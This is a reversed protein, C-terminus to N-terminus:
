AFARIRLDSGNRRNRRHRDALDSELDVRAHILPIRIPDVELECPFTLAPRLDQSAIEFGPPVPPYETPTSDSTPLGAEEIPTEAIPAPALAKTAPPVHSTAGYRLSDRLCNASVIGILLLLTVFWIAHRTAANTRGALRMGVAVFLVLLAGELVGNMGASVLRDCANLIETKM